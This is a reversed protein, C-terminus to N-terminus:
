ASGASQGPAQDREQVVQMGGAGGSAASATSTGNKKEKEELEKKIEEHVAAIKKQAGLLAEALKKIRGLTTAGDRYLTPDMIPGITEARNISNVFPVLPLLMITRCTTIILEQTMQYQDKEAYHAEVADTEDSM